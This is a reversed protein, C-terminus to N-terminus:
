TSLSSEWVIWMLSRLLITRLSLIPKLGHRAPLFITNKGPFIFCITRNFSENQLVRALELMCAVGGTNDDAGTGNASECVYTDSWIPWLYPNRIWSDFIDRLGSEPRVIIKSDHRATILIIEDKLANGEKIGVVNTGSVNWYNFDRTHVRASFNDLSVQLGAEEM